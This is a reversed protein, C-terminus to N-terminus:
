QISSIFLINRLQLRVELCIRNPCFQVTQLIFLNKFEFPEVSYILYVTTESEIFHKTGSCGGGGWGFM